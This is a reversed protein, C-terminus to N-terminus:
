QEGPWPSGIRFHAARERMLTEKERLLREVHEVLIRCDKLCDSAYREVKALRKELRAVRQTATLKKAKAKTTGKM